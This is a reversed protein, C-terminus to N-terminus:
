YILWILSYTKDVEVEILGEGGVAIQIEGGVAVVIQVLVVAIILIQTVEDVRAEGAAENM